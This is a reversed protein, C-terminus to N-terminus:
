LPYQHDASPHEVYQQDLRQHGVLQDPLPAPFLGNAVHLYEGEGLADMERWMHTRRRAFEKSTNAYFELTPGLGTGVEDAYEIELVPPKHAFNFMVQMALRLFNDRSALRIKSRQIRGLSLDRRDPRSSSRQPVWRNMCRSYGFSTSQVFLYRTEFPFLFPYHRALDQSWLPLCNSAILLPEELQRNIKATLKTNVFQSVLDPKPPVSFSDQTDELIEDWRVTLSHLLKLLKLTSTSTSDTHPAPSASILSDDMGSMLLDFTLGDTVRLSGESPPPGPVKRYKITHMGSFIHYYGNAPTQLASYRHLPEFVTSDMPIVRGAFEFELHWDLPVQQLAGAYSMTPPLSRTSTSGALRSGQPTITPTPVEVRFSQEAEDNMHDILEGENPEMDDPDPDSATDRSEVPTEESGRKKSRHHRRPWAVKHGASSTSAGLAAARRALNASFPIGMEQALAALESRQETLNRLLEAPDRLAGAVSAPRASYTVIKNRIFSALHQIQSIAHISITFLQCERPVSSKDEAVVKLRISKALMNAPNRRSDDYPGQSVSIVEFRESRSLLEQLKVILIELPSASDVCGKRREAFIRLFERQVPLPNDGIALTDLLVDLIKSELLEYTTISKMDGEFYKALDKFLKTRTLDDQCTGIKKGLTQLKKLASEEVKEELDGSEAYYKLFARAAKKIVEAPPSADQLNAQYADFADGEDESEEREDESDDEEADLHAEMSAPIGPMGEGTVTSESALKTVQAIIGERHFHLRYVDPLKRALLESLRLAALTLFPHDQQSLMGALFSALQVEGLVTKLSARDLYLFIKLLANLVKQRVTFIITSSYIDLLTPVLVKAFRLVHDRCKDLVDKRQERSPKSREVSVFPVDDNRPAIAEPPSVPDPFLDSIINLTELIQNHPRHILAQLVYISTKKHSEMDTDESPSVGTLIQYVTDVLNMKLLQAGLKASNRVLLGLLRLLQTHTNSGAVSTNGMVLIGLVAELLSETILQELKDPHHKFGDVTRALCLCGQDVVKQDTSSIITRLNPMIEKVTDFSDLPINRCCNAATTVATRQVNTSFFDLYM